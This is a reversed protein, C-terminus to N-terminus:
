AVSTSDGKRVLVLVREACERRGSPADKLVWSDEWNIGERTEVKPWAGQMFSDGQSAGWGLTGAADANIACVTGPGM